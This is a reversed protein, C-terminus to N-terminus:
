IKSSSTYFFIKKFRVKYIGKDCIFASFTMDSAGGGSPDMALFIIDQKMNVREKCQMFVGVADADFIGRNDECDVGGLERRGVDARSAMLKKINKVKEGSFHKPLMNKLHQCKLAQQSSLQRCKKCILAITVLKLIPEGYDDKIRTMVMIPHHLGRPTSISISTVHKSLFIPLLVETFM